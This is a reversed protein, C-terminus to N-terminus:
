IAERSATTGPVSTVNTFEFRAGGSQSETVDISWDHADVIAAVISLGLGTGEASTTYGQDFVEDRNDPSIGPGDDELYFGDTLDGITVTADAPGHDYANRILNELLQRLRREDAEITSETEVRLQGDHTEVGEWAAEAIDALAIPETEDVQRGHRALTLVDNIIEEMRDFSEEVEDFHSPQPDERAMDLYGRAVNIPNRLDHSVISAFQELQENQRELRDTRRELTQKREVAETIDRILMVSGIEKGSDTTVDTLEIEYHRSRGPREIAIERTVNNETAIAECLSPHSPFLAEVPQGVIASRDRDLIATAEDNVDVVQNDSDLVLFGHEINDIVTSRAIPVLELLQFWFLTAYFMVGTFLLGIATLDIQTVGAIHLGNLVWPVLLALALAGVQRRYTTEQQRFYEIMTLAVTTMLILYSYGANIYFMPGYEFQALVIGGNEMTTMERRVLSHLGTPETWVLLLMLIFPSALAALYRRTLWRDRGSYELMFVFITYVVGTSGIFRVNHLWLKLSPDVAVVRLADAAAWIACAVLMGVVATGTRQDRNQFAFSALVLAIAAAVAFGLSYYSFQWVM